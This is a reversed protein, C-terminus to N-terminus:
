APLYLNLNLDTEPQLPQFSFVVIVVTVEFTDTRRTRTPVQDASNQIVQLQNFGKKLSGFLLANCYELGSSIFVHM